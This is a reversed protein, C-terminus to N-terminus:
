CKLLMSLREQAYMEPNATTEGDLETGKRFAVYLGVPLLSYDKFASSASYFLRRM